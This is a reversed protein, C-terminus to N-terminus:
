KKKSSKPKTEQEEEDEVFAGEPPYSLTDLMEEKRGDSLYPFQLEQKKIQKAIAKEAKDKKAQDLGTDQAMYLTQSPFAFGTGSDSIIDAIHLNLDEQVALFDNYNNVKVYAFIEVKLSDAGYELFRVRAEAPKTNTEVMPHAYILERLRTLLYRMQNPSTEYRLGLFTRFLFKDRRTFNNIIQSSFDGNPMTVVTRDLKRIRTSRMGINEITGLIPGVECFDGIRVPQDFVITVSGVLNEISKQAGLALALGGIGLAALGASVNVGSADLIIITAVAILIFKISRRFFLIVSLSGQNKRKRLKQESKSSITDILLWLFLFLAAWLLSINVIAFADRVIISFELSRSAWTFIASTMVFSVPILFSRILRLHDKDSYNKWLRKVIFGIAYTVGWAIMYSGILALVMGIWHLTPAGRWRHEQIAQPIFTDTVTDAVTETKDEDVNPLNKIQKVTEASILWIDIGQEKDKLRELTITAEEEQWLLTGVQEQDIALSDQLNGEPQDSLLTTATLKGGKDLLAFFKEILAQSNRGQYGKSFGDFNFYQATHDFDERAFADLLGKITGQPTERGYTDQIIAVQATDAEAATGPVLTQAQVSNCAVFVVTMFLFNYFYRMVKRAKKRRLM